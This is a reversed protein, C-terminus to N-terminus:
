KTSSDHKKNKLKDISELVVTKGMHSALFRCVRNIKAQRPALKTFLTIKSEM